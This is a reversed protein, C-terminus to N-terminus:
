CEGAAGGGARYGLGLPVTNATTLGSVHRDSRVIGVYHVAACLPPPGILLSSLLVPCPSSTLTHGSRALLRAGSFKFYRKWHVKGM